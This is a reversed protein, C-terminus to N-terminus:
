QRFLRTEGKKISFVFTGTESIKKGSIVDFVPKNPDKAAFHISGNEAGHLLVFPGNAWVNCNEKTYLHVNALKAKQRLDEQKVGDPGVWIVISDRTIKRIKIRTEEDLGQPNLILCLKPARVRGSLLDDMLYQSYPAGLRNLPQRVASVMPGSFRGSSIKLMSKEDLFAGIEPQYPTPHDLFWQDVPKLADMIKWLEPSNFWGAAGLDMWWTGFNRIACEGTNRLLLHCTEELTDSGSEHGPALSGIALYTRTDDEYLYVKGAATVSEANLMCCCGGGPQRDFYSIPSCIVDIFPSDLLKRLAYHASAAPGKRVSSFEYSYGYFFFVLKKGGTAERATKALALITDTMEDQLFENFDLIQRNDLYPKKMSADRAEPSPVEANSLTVTQTDWSKQLNEDTSYKRTLWQRFAIRDAPAYGSYCLGWTNPTFWEQTNQGAPHYGAISNGYKGELHKITDYLVRCAEERYKKSSVTAWESGHELPTKGINKWVAKEDPNAELWWPFADIKPRPIILAKPNAALITDCISDITSWDYTGDPNKWTKSGFMFSVLDVGSNAALKVQEGLISGCSGLSLHPIDPRYFAVRVKRNELSSKIDFKVLYTKGQRLDLTWQHYLHFDCSLDAPIKHIKISLAESGDPGAKPVTQLDAITTQGIKAQWFKWNHTFEESNEFRYPGAVQKGTEKDIISFNDIVIEGPERGFRFHITGRKLADETLTFEFEVKQFKPGTVIPAAGPIGFFIRHRTPKGDFTLTPVGGIKEVAFRDYALLTEATSFLFATILFYWFFKKM